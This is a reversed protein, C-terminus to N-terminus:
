LFILSIYNIHSKRHFGKSKEEQGMHITHNISIFQLKHQSIDVLTRIGLVFENNNIVVFM